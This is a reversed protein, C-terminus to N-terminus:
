GLWSIGLHYLSKTEFTWALSVRPVFGFATKQGECVHSPPADIQNLISDDSFLYYCNLFYRWAQSCAWSLLRQLLLSSIAVETPVPRLCPCGCSCTPPLLLYSPSVKLLVPRLWHGKCSCAYTLSKWLVLGLGTVETPGPGLWSDGCFAWALSM